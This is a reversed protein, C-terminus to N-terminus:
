KVFLFDYSNLLVWLFDEAAKKKSRGTFVREAAQIERNTPGRGLTALALSRVIQQKTKGSQLLKAIRGTKSAIKRDIEPANMLHLAQAMTPAGSKGCACPSQRESRGFVDLFYSPLRNDWLQIARTGPPMGAYKEAEGTVECIADLLVEAPMRKVYYHSYSQEDDFNTKNTKSSLQYVRSQLITEMVVRLDFKKQVVLQSLHNLLAENTAPNTSRIDDEPEILGRGLFHKWLRNAVLRAFWPNKESTMWAALRVRPDGVFKKAVPGGPPRTPVIKGTLPMKTQVYGRHFIFERDAAISKREMGNFFGALGYFDEQGWKEFPHHHCQACDMRIGLFAQSVSKTLDEPTRVARYFNVPGYQSTNGSATLIESVWKDYPRNQAFQKRLWRHFEFAGREGLKRQDVLLIDAWKLAWYDSWEPRALVKQIAQNRKDKDRSIVFAEVKAPGPLTGIADIHLRRFFTADDSLISPLIGMKKLKSWVLDDIRNYSPITPYEALSPRPVVVRVASVLGMYNITIAAEGPRSGTQIQGSQSVTAVTEANSTYTAADTVDRRRGDSFIATIAVQQDSKAALVREVPYVELREVKAASAMGLPTGQRIWEVLLNADASNPLTRQGGGHAALGVAKRYLLSRQPSAPFVRRGRGEKVLAVFDAQPDFGFVSLKFGNQGSQKGHCGGSNCGLKSLLPIIDNRFHVAPYSKISQVTIKSDVSRGAFSITLKTTGDRVGWVIGKRIQVIDSDLKFKASRSVDHQRGQRDTVTVVLQQRRNDGSVIAHSPQVEIKVIAKPPKALGNSAAALLLAVAILDMRRLMPMTLGCLHTSRLDPSTLLKALFSWQHLASVITAPKTLLRFTQSFRTRVFGITAPKTLLRFTQSFRTRVFGAVFLRSPNCFFRGRM